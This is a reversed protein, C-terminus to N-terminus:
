VEITVIKKIVAYGILLMVVVVCIACIGALTSTLPKMLDPDILRLLIYVVAPALSMAIAQFRGQATMAKLKLQFETRARIMETMRGLVDALSGGTQLTLRVTTVLLRLDEGPMRSHLRELAEALDLGLRAERLVIALEEQMPPSIRKAVADLAQPLAQGSKLGNSLNMTLNLIQADFAEKRQRFKRKLWAMPLKWGVFGAVVAVPLVIFFSFVEKTALFCVVVAVVAVMSCFRITVFRAPSVFRRMPDTAVSDADMSVAEAKAMLVRYVAFLVFASLATTAFFVLVTMGFDM